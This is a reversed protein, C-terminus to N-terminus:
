VIKVLKVEGNDDREVQYMINDEVDEFGYDVRLLEGSYMDGIVISEKMM